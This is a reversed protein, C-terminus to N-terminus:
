RDIYITGSLVIPFSFTRLVDEDILIKDDILRGLLKNGNETIMTVSDSKSDIRKGLHIVSSQGDILNIIEIVFVVKDDFFYIANSRGSYDPHVFYPADPFENSSPIPQHNCSLPSPVCEVESFSDSITITPVSSSGTSIIPLISRQFEESMHAFCEMLHDSQLELRDLRENLKNMSDDMRSLSHEINDMRCYLNEHPLSSHEGMLRDVAVSWKLKPAKYSLEASKDNRDTSHCLERSSLM